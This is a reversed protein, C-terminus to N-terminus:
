TLRIIISPADCESMEMESFKYGSNPVNTLICIFAYILRSPVFYCMCALEEVAM